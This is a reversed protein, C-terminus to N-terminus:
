PVDSSPTPPPIGCAKPLQPFTSSLSPPSHHQSLPDSSILHGRSFSRPLHTKDLCKDSFPTSFPWEMNGEKQNIDGGPHLSCLHKIGNVDTLILPILTLYCSHSKRPCTILFLMNWRRHAQASSSVNSGSFVTPLADDKTLHTKIWIETGKHVLHIVQLLNKLKESVLEKIWWVSPFM